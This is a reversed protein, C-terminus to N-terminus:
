TPQIRDLRVDNCLDTMTLFSLENRDRSLAAEDMFKLYWSSFGKTEALNFPHFWFHYVRGHKKKHILRNTNNKIIIKKVFSKKGTSWNLFLSGSLELGGWSGYTCVSKPVSFHSLCRNNKDIIPPIRICSIESDSLVSPNFVQDRPFILTSIKKSFKGLASLSKNIEAKLCDDNAEPHRAHLHTYTHSAIEHQVNSALIMEFLDSGDFTTKKARGVFYEVASRYSQPLHDFNWDSPNQIMAGVCAITMPIDLESSRQLIRGFDDRVSDFIGRKERQLWKESSISGWGLEFDLSIVFAAM